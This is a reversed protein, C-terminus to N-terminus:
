NFEPPLDEEEEEEQEKTPFSGSETTPANSLISKANTLASHPNKVLTKANALLNPDDIGMSLLAGAPDAKLQSRLTNQPTKNNKNRLKAKLFKRKEDPTMHSLDEDANLM